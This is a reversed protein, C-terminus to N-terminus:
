ASIYSKQASRLFFTGKHFLLLFCQERSFQTPKTRAHMILVKVRAETFRERVFRQEVWAQLVAKMVGASPDRAGHM